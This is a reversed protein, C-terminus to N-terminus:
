AKLKALGDNVTAVRVAVSTGTPRFSVAHVGEPTVPSWTMTLVGTGERTLHVMAQDGRKSTTVTCGHDNAWKVATRFV